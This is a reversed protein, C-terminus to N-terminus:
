SFRYVLHRQFFFTHYLTFYKAEKAMKTLTENRIKERLEEEPFPVRDFSSPKAPEEAIPKGGAM